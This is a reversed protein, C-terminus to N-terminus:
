RKHTTAISCGLEDGSVRPSHLHTETQHHFVSSINALPLFDNDTNENSTLVSGSGVPVGKGTSSLAVRFDHTVELHPAGALLQLEALAGARADHGAVALAEDALVAEVDSALGKALVVIVEAEVLRLLRTAVRGVM